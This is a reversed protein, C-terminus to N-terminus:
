FLIYLFLSIFAFLIVWKWVGFLTFGYDICNWMMDTFSVFFKPVDYSQELEYSPMTIEPYMDPFDPPPVQPVVWNGGVGVDPLNDFLDTPISPVTATIPFDSSPFKTDFYDNLSGLLAGASSTDLDEDPVPLYTEGLYNTEKRIASPSYLYFTNPFQKCTFLLEHEFLGMGYATRFGTYPARGMNAQNAFPISNFIFESPFINFNKPRVPYPSTELSPPSFNFNGRAHFARNINPYLTEDGMSCSQNIYYYYYYNNLNEPFQIPFGRTYCYLSNGEDSSYFKSGVFVDSSYSYGLLFIEHEKDLWGLGFKMPYDKIQELTPGELSSFDYTDAIFSVCSLSYMGKMYATYLDLEWKAADLLTSVETNKVLLDIISDETVNLYDDVREPYNHEGNELINQLDDPLLSEASHASLTNYFSLATINVVAVACAISILKNRKM